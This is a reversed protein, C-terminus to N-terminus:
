QELQDDIQSCLRWAEHLQFGSQLVQLRIHDEENVMLAVAENEGIAVGRPYQADEHEKSILHREVLFKRDLAESKHLPLYMGGTLTKCNMVEQHILAECAAREPAEMKTIFRYGRINRALRVRSSIVIEAETGTGRMWEGSSKIMENLIM